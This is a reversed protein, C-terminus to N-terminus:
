VNKMEETRAVHEAWRMMRSKIVRIMNPLTYLKFEGNHLKRRKTAKMRGAGFIRKLAKKEFESVL